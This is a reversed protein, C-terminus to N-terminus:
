KGGGSNVTHQTTGPSTLRGFPGLLFNSALMQRRLLDNYRAENRQNRIERPLGAVEQLGM